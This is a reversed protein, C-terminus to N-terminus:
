TNECIEHSRLKAIEGDNKEVCFITKGNKFIQKIIKFFGKTFRSSNKQFENSTGIHTIMAVDAKSFGLLLDDRMIEEPLMLILNAKGVVQFTIKKNDANPYDIVRFRPLITSSADSSILVSHYFKSFLAFFNIMHAKLVQFLSPKKMEPRPKISLLSKRSM